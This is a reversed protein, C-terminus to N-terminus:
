PKLWPKIREDKKLEELRSKRTADPPGAKAYGAELSKIQNAIYMPERTGWENRKVSQFYQWVKDLDENLLAVDSTRKVVVRHTAM